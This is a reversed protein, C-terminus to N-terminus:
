RVLPIDAALQANILADLKNEVQFFRATKRAPLVKRFRPVYKTKVSTRAKEIALYDDLMRIAQQDSLNDYSELYSTVLKVFRDNVKMMEARYERYLPWFAEAEKPELDMASTVLAQRRAQIATRTLEIESTIDQEGAEPKAEQGAAPAPMPAPAQAALQSAAVMAAMLGMTIPIMWRVIRTM